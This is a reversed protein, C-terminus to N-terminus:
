KNKEPFWTDRLIKWQGDEKKWVLLYRGRGVVTGNEHYWSGTGEEVLLDDNGWLETTEFSSGTISDQIMSSFVKVINERGATSPIIEANALYMNGLALSDGNKLHREYERLRSEIEKELVSIDSQQIESKKEFAGQGCGSVCIALILLSTMQNKKIQINKMEM